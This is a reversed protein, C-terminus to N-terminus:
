NSSPPPPEPAIAEPPPAVPEPAVVPPPAVPEPAADVVPPSVPIPEPVPVAAPVEASPSPPPAITAPEPPIPSIGAEPVPEQAKPSPIPDFPLTERSRAAAPPPMEQPVPNYQTPQQLTVEGPWGDLDPFSQESHFFSTGPGTTKAALRLSLGTGIGLLAAIAITTIVASPFYKSSSSTMPSGGVQVKSRLPNNPITLTQSSISRTQPSRAPTSSLSVSERVPVAGSLLALWEAVTAPRDDPELALGRLIAANVVASLSRCLHQPPILDLTHRATALVPAQGTVLFYLTAALGYVDTAPTVPRHPSYQEIALYHEGGAVTVLSGLGEHANAFEVASLVVIESGPPHVFAHPSLHQHIFHHQHLVQVVAGMQHMFRVAIAEPLRKHTQVLTLLSQGPPQDLVAFPLNEVEFHDLLQVSAPHRCHSFRQMQAEFAQKIAPYHPNGQLNPNLTKLLVSHPQQSARVTLSWADHQAVCTVVYRGNHLITGAKLQMM